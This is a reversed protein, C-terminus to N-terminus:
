TNTTECFTRIERPASPLSCQISLSNGFNIVIMNHFAINLVDGAPPKRTQIEQPTIPMHMNQLKEDFRRLPRTPARASHIFSYAFYFLVFHFM